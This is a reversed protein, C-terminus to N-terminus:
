GAILLTLAMVAMGGVLGYVSLHGPEYRKANPLLQDMSLFVMIGAVAALVGGTVAPSLFPGLVLWACAAGVPESLGSLLSYWFAKRKDGTAYYIPVAVSIGEPINHLAVALTIAVGRASGDLASFFTAAGEPFNHIGIALATLVGLRHLHQDAAGPPPGAMDEVLNADHPNEPAPLIRDLLVSLLVGVFFCGVAQWDGLARRAEPLLEVFSVYIMVGGSFGLAAGLLRTNTRHAFFALASGIGTSLGAVASMGLAGWM